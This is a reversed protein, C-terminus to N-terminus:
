IQSFDMGNTKSNLPKNKLQSNEIYNREFDSPLNIVTESTSPNMYKVDVGKKM